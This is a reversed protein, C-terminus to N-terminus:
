NNIVGIRFETDGGTGMGGFALGFTLSLVLPFIIILFMAGPERIFLKLDKITLAVIRRVKM